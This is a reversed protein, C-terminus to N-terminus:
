GGKNKMKVFRIDKFEARIITAHDQGKQTASNCLATFNASYFTKMEKRNKATGALNKLRM